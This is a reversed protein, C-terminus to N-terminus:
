ADFSRKIIGDLDGDAGFLPATRTVWRTRTVDGAVREQLTRKDVYTVDEVYTEKLIVTGRQYEKYPLMSAGAESLRASREAQKMGLTAKKGLVVDCVKNLANRHADGQRWRLYRVVADEDPVTFIRSDFTAGINPPPPTQFSEVIEHYIAQWNFAATAISATLSVMKPVVNGLFPQTEIKSQDSIVLSIEDSQTYALVTGSVQECLKTAAVRMCSAFGPDFPQEMKRTYTHFARGDVRVIVWSKLPLVQRYALEYGKFEEGIPDSKM